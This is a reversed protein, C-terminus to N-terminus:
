MGPLGPGGGLSGLGSTLPGMRQEQLAAANGTADRVAALVLDAVTEATDAPDAPDAPDATDFAEPSITLGVLEGSGLVTATVLGGGASGQVQTRALEEQAQMLQQQLQQAQQLVAAMDPQGGPFV